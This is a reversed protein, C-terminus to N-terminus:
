RIWIWRLAAPFSIIAKGSFHPVIRFSILWSFYFDNEKVYNTFCIISVSELIVLSKRSHAIQIQAVHDLSTHAFLTGVATLSNKAEHLEHIKSKNIAAKKTIAEDLSTSMQEFHAKSDNIRHLESFFSDGHVLM